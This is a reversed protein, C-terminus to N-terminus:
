KSTLNFRTIGGLTGGSVICLNLGGKSGNLLLLHGKLSINGRLAGSKTIKDLLPMVLKTPHKSGLSLIKLVILSTKLDPLILMDRITLRGLRRGWRGEPQKKNRGRRKEVSTSVNLIVSQELM